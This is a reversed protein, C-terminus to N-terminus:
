VIEAGTKQKRIKLPGVSGDDTSFHSGELAGKKALFDSLTVVQSKISDYKNFPLEEVKSVGVGMTEMGSILADLDQAQGFRLRRYM